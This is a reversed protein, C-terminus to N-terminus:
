KYYVSTKVRVVRKAYPVFSIMILRAWIMAHDKCPRHASRSANCEHPLQAANTHVACASKHPPSVGIAQCHNSKVSNRKGRFAASGHGINVMIKLRHWGRGVYHCSSWNFHLKQYSWKYQTTGLTLKAFRSHPEIWNGYQINKHASEISRFSIHRMGYLLVLKWQLRRYRCKSADNLYKIFKISM